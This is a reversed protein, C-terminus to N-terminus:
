LRKAYFRMGGGPISLSDERQDQTINPMEGGTLQVLDSAQVDLLWENFESRSVQDGIERRLRYIPVLDNLNYDQNLQDYTKLLVDSFAEASSIEAVKGNGKAKGNTLSGEIVENRQRLWKLLANTVKPGINTTFAFEEDALNKALRQKGATTLTYVKRNKQQQFSLSENQELRALADSYAQGKSSPVFSSKSVYASSDLAWLSLLIRTEAYLPSLKKGM